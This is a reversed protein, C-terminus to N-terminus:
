GGGFIDRNRRIFQARASNAADPDRGATERKRGETAWRQLIASIYRWSRKNLLVAERMAEELWEFPYLQEAEKLAEAVLPTLPGINDEYLQFLNGRASAPAEARAPLARGLDIRGARVLGLARADAPANLFYLTEIRDDRELDLRLLMGRVVAKELGQELAEIAGAENGDGLSAMLPAEARLEAATVFRPYGRRRGLAYIVYLSVRLEAPDEIQPMLESFFVSPVATARAGAPFGAFTTTPSSPTTM